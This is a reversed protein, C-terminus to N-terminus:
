AAVAERSVCWPALQERVEGASLGFQELHYRHRAYGHEAAARAVYAEMRELAHPTLERGLFTYTRQIATRWDAGVEEFGLDFQLHAPIRQRVRGVVDLRHRTKHLWERGVWNADV